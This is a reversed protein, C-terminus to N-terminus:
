RYARIATPISRSSKLHLAEPLGKKTGLKNSYVFKLSPQLEKFENGLIIGKTASIIVQLFMGLLLSYMM